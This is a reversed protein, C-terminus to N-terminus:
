SLYYNNLAIFCSGLWRRRIKKTVSYINDLGFALEVTNISKRGDRQSLCAYQSLKRQMIKTLQPKRYSQAASFHKTRSSQSVLLAKVPKLFKIAPTPKVPGQIEQVKSIVPSLFSSPTSQEHRIIVSKLTNKEVKKVFCGNKLLLFAKKNVFGSLRNLGSVIACRKAKAKQLPSSEVYKFKETRRKRLCVWAIKQEKTFLDKLLAPLKSRM